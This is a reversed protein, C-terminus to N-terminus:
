LTSVMVLEETSMSSSVMMVVVSTRALQITVTRHVNILEKPANMLIQSSYHMIITQGCIMIVICRLVGCQWALLFARVMALVHISVM